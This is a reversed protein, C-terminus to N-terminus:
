PTLGAARASILANRAFEASPYNTSVNVDRCLEENFRLLRECAEVLTKVAGERAAEADFASRLADYAGVAGGGPYSSLWSLSREAAQRLSPASM